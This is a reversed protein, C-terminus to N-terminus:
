RLRTAIKVAKDPSGSLQILYRGPTVKFALTKQVGPCAHERPEAALDLAKGGRVFDIFTKNDLSVELTGARPVDITALGAYGKRTAKGAAFRVMAQPLLAIQVTGGTKLAFKMEATRAALHREPKAWDQASPCAQAWAPGSGMLLVAAILVRM